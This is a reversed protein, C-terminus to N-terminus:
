SAHAPLAKSAVAKTMAQHPHLLPIITEQELCSPYAKKFNEEQSVSCYHRPPVQFHKSHLLSTDGSVELIQFSSLFIIISFSSPTLHITDFSPKSIFHSNVKTILNQNKSQNRPLGQKFWSRTNEAQKERPQGTTYHHCQRQHKREPIPLSLPLVSHFTFPHLINFACSCFRM